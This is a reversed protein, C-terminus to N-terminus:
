KNWYDCLMVRRLIALTVTIIEKALGVEYKYFKHKSMASAIMVCIWWWDARVTGDEEHEAYRTDDDFLSSMNAM